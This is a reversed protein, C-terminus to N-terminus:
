ARAATVTSRGTALVVLIFLFPVASWLHGTTYGGVLAEVVGFLVGGVFSHVPSRFAFIAAAGVATLTLSLGDAYTLGTTYVLLIGATAAILGQLVIAGFQLKTVAIGVLGAAVPDDAGARLSRGLRTRELFVLLLVMLGLGIGLNIVSQPNVRIGGIDWFTSFNSHIVPDRGHITLVVSELAAAIGFTALVITIPDGKGRTRLIVYVTAVIAASAMGALLGLGIGAAGGITGAVVGGVVAHSGVAVDVARTTAYVLSIPIAILGYTTGLLVGHVLYELLERV